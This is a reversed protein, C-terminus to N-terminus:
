VVTICLQWVTFSKISVSLKNLSLTSSSCCFTCKAAIYRGRRDEGSPLSFEFIINEKKQALCLINILKMPTAGKQLIANNMM